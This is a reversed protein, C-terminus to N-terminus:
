VTDALVPKLRGRYGLSFLCILFHISPTSLLTSVAITAQLGFSLPIFIADPADLKYLFLLSLTHNM